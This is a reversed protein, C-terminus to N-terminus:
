RVRLPGSAHVGDHPEPEAARRGVAVRKTPRVRGAAAFGVVRPEAEARPTRAAVAGSPEVGRPTPVRRDAVKVGPDNCRKPTGARSQPGNLVGGGGVRKAVGASNARLPEAVEPAPAVRAGDAM